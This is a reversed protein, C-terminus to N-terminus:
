NGFPDVILLVFVWKHDCTVEISIFVIRHNKVEFALGLIQGYAWNNQDISKALQVGLLFANAGAASKLTPSVPFFNVVDKDLRFGFDDSSRDDPRVSIPAVRRVM